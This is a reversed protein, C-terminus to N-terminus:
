CSVSPCSLVGTLERRVVSCTFLMNFLLPSMCYACLEPPFDNSPRTLRQFLILVVSQGTNESVFSIM